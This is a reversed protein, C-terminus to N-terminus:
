FNYLLLRKLFYLRTSTLYILSLLYEQQNNRHVSFDLGYYTIQPSNLLKNIISQFKNRWCPRLQLNNRM